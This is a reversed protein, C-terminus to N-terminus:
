NNRLQEERLTEADSIRYDIDAIGSTLQDLYMKFLAVGDLQRDIDQNIQPDLKLVGKGQILRLPYKTLFDDMIVRKFDSNNLLRNLSELLQKEVKLDQIDQDLKNMRM